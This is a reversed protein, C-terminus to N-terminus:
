DRAPAAKRAILAAPALRALQDSVSGLLLRSAGGLGRSGCVVLDAENAAQLLAPVPEGAPTDTKVKFGETQLVRAASEANKRAEEVLFDHVEAPPAAGPVLPSVSPVVDAVSVVTVAAKKPDAMARFVDLSHASDVSGDTALVVKTRGRTESFRHVVLVSSPSSHLVRTSTSGLLLNDFWKTSGAGLVVVDFGGEVAREIIQAAPAGRGVVSDATFGESQFAAVEADAVEQPQARPVWEGGYKWPEKPFAFEVSECVNVVVEVRRADAFSRLLAGAQQAPQAGNTAFLVRM